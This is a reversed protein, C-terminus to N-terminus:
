ERRTPFTCIPRTPLTGDRLGRCGLDRPTAFRCLDDTGGDQADRTGVRRHHRASLLYSRDTPELGVVRAARVTEGLDVRFAADQLIDGGPSRRLAGCEGLWRRDLLRSPVSREGSIGAYGSAPLATRRHARVIQAPERRETKVDNKYDSVARRPYDDTVDFDGNAEIFSNLRYLTQLLATKGSENKRSPLHCRWDRGRDLGSHESIGQYSAFRNMGACAPSCFPRDGEILNIIM